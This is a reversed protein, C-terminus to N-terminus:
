CYNEINEAEPAARSARLLQKIKTRELTLCCKDADIKGGGGAKWTIFRATTRDNAIIAVPPVGIAYNIVIDRRPYLCILPNNHLFWQNKPAAGTWYDEYLGFSLQHSSYHINHFDPASQGYDM